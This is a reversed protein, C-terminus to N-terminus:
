APALTVHAAERAGKALPFKLRFPRTALRAVSLPMAISVAVIFIAISAAITSKGVGGKGSGVAIVSKAELGIQGLKAPECAIINAITPAEAGAQLNSFKELLDDRAILIEIAQSPNLRRARLAAEEILTVIAPLEDQCGALDELSKSIEELALVQDRTHRAARFAELLRTGSNVPTELLVFPDTKKAPMGFQGDSKM